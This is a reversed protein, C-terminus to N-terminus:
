THSHAHAQRHYDENPVCGVGADLNQALDTACCCAKVVGLKMRFIHLEDFASQDDLNGFREGEGVCTIQLVAQPTQFEVTGAVCMRGQWAHACRLVVFINNEINVANRTDIPRSGLNKRFNHIRVRRLIDPDEKTTQGISLHEAHKLPTPNNLLAASQSMEHGTNILCEPHRFGLVLRLFELM